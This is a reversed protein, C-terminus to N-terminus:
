SDGRRFEEKGISSRDSSGAWPSIVSSSRVYQSCSSCHSAIGVLSRSKGGNALWSCSIM